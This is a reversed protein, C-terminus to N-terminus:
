GPMILAREAFRSAEDSLGLKEYLNALNRAARFSGSGVVSGDLDPNEGIQLCKLWAAEVVPLIEEHAIEINHAAWELYLEAVAFYFDPSHDWNDQEADVLTLAEHLRGTWRLALITYIVISHRYTSETSSRHYATLLSEAGKELAKDMLYQRGLQYWLYADDPRVALEAHLLHENRGAKQELQAADYGDHLVLVPLRVLPLDTIPQEHVRGEYRVGRPLLRPLYSRRPAACETADAVQLCGTFAARGLHRSPLTAPGLAEGGSTLWEDADLILNWDADSKDLAANRAAAFDNPWDMQHLEAGHGKAIDV